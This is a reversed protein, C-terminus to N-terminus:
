EEDPFMRYWSTETVRGDAAIGQTRQWYKTHAVTNDDFVGTVDIGLAGQWKEVRDGTSGLEVVELPPREQPQTDGAGDTSSDDSGTPRDDGEPMDEEGFMRAWSTETVRGDAAIGQTRQWYKTHAVTNDDFVGTVDIGLAGQWKEVMEGTSGRELLVSSPRSVTSGAQGAGSFMRQWSTLDVIGDAGLGNARQWNRTARDTQPGFYGDAAIGLARQWIVVDASRSGTRLPRGPYPPAEEAASDDDSEEPASSGGEKVGAGPFMKLWSDLGVVGDAILNQRYQWAKTASLTAPGFYGDAGIGLARQWVIVGPGQSGLKLPSGPFSPVGPRAGTEAGDSETSETGDDTPDEGDDGIAPPPTPREVGAGPFMTQWSKMGVIGDPELGNARQWERTARGTDSGFYGDSFVGLASQWTRVWKGQSGVRLLFGPYSPVDSETEEPETEETETEPETETEGGTETEESTETSPPSSFMKNWSEEGVIGDAVLGNAQQWQRTAASTVPGFDGDAGIGLAEQWVRVAEGRSGERLPEGPYPNEAIVVRTATVASSPSTGIQNTATVTFSYEVGARLGGFVASTQSGGVTIPDAHSPNATVTYSEPAFRSAVPDWSVTAAAGGTVAVGTPAPPPAWWDALYDIEFYKSRLRLSSRLTSASARETVRSGGKIGVVTVFQASGWPYPVTSVSIVDDFQGALGYTTLLRSLSLSSSWFANPNVNPDISWPDEVSVLYPRGATGWLASSDETAGGSSSSYFAQVVTVEEEPHTVVRGATPRAGVMEWRGGNQIERNWGAYVQDRTDSVVHCWCASKRSSSFSTESGRRLMGYIAYSRAAIAQAELAADMWSTPIEAIGAVYDEIDLQLSFHMRAGSPSIRIHGHIFQTMEGAYNLGRLGVRNDHSLDQISLRCQWAVGVLNTSCSGDGEATVVLEEGRNLYYAGACDSLGSGQVLAQWTQGGVAGDAELGQAAQFSIVAERVTENFTGPAGQLYGLDALRNLLLDTFTNDRDPASGAALLPYSNYDDDFCVKVRGTSVVFTFETRNQRIGVWIPMSETVVWSRPIADALNEVSSGQYFHELIQTSTYGQQAMGKAGYQTLGVGHGNGAGRITIQVDDLDITSDPFMVKWSTPGVIGDATLGKEIQWAITAERTREGFDGDAPIGLAEQWVRVAEGQSGLRLPEDPYEQALVPLTTGVLFLVAGLGAAIRLGLRQRINILDNELTFGTLTPVYKFSGVRAAIM